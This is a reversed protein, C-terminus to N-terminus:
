HMVKKDEYDQATLPALPKAPPTTPSGPAASLHTHTNIATIIDNLKDTLKNVCVLGGNKGQNLIIEAGLEIREVQDLALVALELLDGSLSGILVASGVKPVVLMPQETKATSARLRVDPIKLGDVEVTCTEEQVDRVIGQYLSAQATPALQRIRQALEKHPTM